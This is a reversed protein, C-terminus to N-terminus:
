NGNLYSIALNYIALGDGTEAAEKRIEMSKQINKNVQFGREYFDALMGMADVYKQEASKKLWKIGLKINKESSPIRYDASYLYLTALGFQAQANGNEALPKWIDIAKLYNGVEYQKLGSNYDVDKSWSVSTLLLSFIILIHKM